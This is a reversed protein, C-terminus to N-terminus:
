LLNKIESLNNVTRWSVKKLNEPATNFTIGKNTKKFMEIDNAGDGICACEEIEVGLKECMEELHKLKAYVEEGDSVINKLYDDENFVLKTNAQYNPINLSEAARKVTADFSGSIIALQYGRNRLYAVLEEAGEKFTIKELMQEINERTALGREQYLSNLKTTWENYTIEGKGYADYMEKDEEPTIGLAINLQYWSNHNILTDDM